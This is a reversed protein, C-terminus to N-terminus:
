ESGSYAPFLASLRRADNDTLAIATSTLAADLHAVTRPGIVAADVRPHHLVWALALASMDVGRGRADKELASLGEFISKQELHRYPEPRLTM